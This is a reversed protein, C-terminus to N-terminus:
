GQDGRSRCEVYMGIGGFGTESSALDAGIEEHKKLLMRASAKEVILRESDNGVSVAEGYFYVIRNVERGLSRIGDM